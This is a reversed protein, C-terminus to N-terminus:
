LEKHIDIKLLKAKESLIMEGFMDCLYKDICKKCFDEGNVSYEAIEGCTDCYDIAVDLYPCAKGICLERPCGVCHDEYKRM